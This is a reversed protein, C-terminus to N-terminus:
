TMFRVECLTFALRSNCCSFGDRDPVWSVVQCAERMRHGGVLVCVLRRSELMFCLRHRIYINEGVAVLGVLGHRCIHM